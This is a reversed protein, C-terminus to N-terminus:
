ERLLDARSLFRITEDGALVGSLPAANLHMIRSNAFYGFDFQTPEGATKGPIPMLRATLPKNLRLSLVAVDLLLAYIQEASTDGPLPICDLGTGCVASYLMLDQITLTGEAARQALTADELVPLMLGNFGVRQYTGRNLAEALLAAAALSGAMGVAPVGLTELATGLSISKDPYPAPTFDLGQFRCNTRRVAEASLEALRSAQTSIQEVLNKRAERMTAARKFCDIVMDAAETGVAFSAIKGQAYSAPFFPAGAQVNALMTFRLNGFGDPSITACRRIVEASKRVAATNVGSAYTGSLGSLFVNQTAALMDPIADFSAPHDMCAPGLSIYSFGAASALNEMKEAYGAYDTAGGLQRITSYSTTALRMSQIEYGASTFIPRIIEAQRGAQEVAKEPATFNPHIFFTISRIKM